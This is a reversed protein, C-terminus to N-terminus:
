PRARLAALIADHQGGTVAAVLAVRLRAPDDCAALADRLTEDSGDFRVACASLVAGRLGEQAAHERAQAAHAKAQASEARAQESEAREGHHLVELVLDLGRGEDAVVLALREDDDTRPVDVVALV